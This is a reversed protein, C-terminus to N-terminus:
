LVHLAGSLDDGGVGLTKCAPHGEQGGVLLTPSSFSTASSALIYIRLGNNERLRWPRSIFPMRVIRTKCYAKFKTATPQTVAIVDDQLFDQVLM